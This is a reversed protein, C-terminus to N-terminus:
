GIVRGSPLMRNQGFREIPNIRILRNGKARAFLSFLQYIEVMMHDIHVTTRAHHESIFPHGDLFVCTRKYQRDYKVMNLFM